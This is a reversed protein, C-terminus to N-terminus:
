AYIYDGGALYLSHCCVHAFAKNPEVDTYLWVTGDRGLDRLRHLEYSSGYLCGHALLLGHASSLENVVLFSGVWFLADVLLCVGGVFGYLLPLCVAAILGAIVLM